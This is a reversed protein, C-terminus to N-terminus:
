SLVVTYVVIVAYTCIVKTCNSSEGVTCTGLKKTIYANNGHQTSVMSRNELCRPYGDHKISEYCKPQYM